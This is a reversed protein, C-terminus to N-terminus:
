QAGPPLKSESRSAPTDAVLIVDRTLKKVVSCADENKRCECGDGFLPRRVDM